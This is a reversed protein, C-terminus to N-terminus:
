KLWNSGFVIYYAWKEPGRAVDIGVRLKFKRALLYRFGTGGTLVWKSSGFDKWEDFAKGAGSFAMVSWRKIDFRFELESLIDAKGQYRNIPVGRMDIYPLMYFPPDEWVQQGDIRLGAIINKSLPQYLYMYYNMRWFEYDSGLFDDSRILDTHFKIGKDPTFINDRNDLEVIVGLQSITRNLAASDILHALSGDGDYSIDTKLFLYRFGAYWHSFGLRKIMQIMAPYSRINFKFEKEGVQSFTKYYSMNIDAFGGGVIYKIRHKVITGARFLMIAWSNNLTYLFAGGTVDPAVPTLVLKGKISDVYPPQKKIFIPAIAGGFNGLAPETLIYPVPVFGNADIIYDSLDFKNDLSDKLSIKKKEEQAYTSGGCLITFLIILIAGHGINM